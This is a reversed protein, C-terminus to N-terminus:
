ARRPHCAAVGGHDPRVGKVTQQEWSWLMRDRRLFCTRLSSSTRTPASRYGENGSVVAYTTRHPGRRSRRHDRAVFTLATASNGGVSDVALARRLGHSREDGLRLAARNDERPMHAAAKSLRQHFAMVSVDPGARRATPGVIAHHDNGTPIRRTAHLGHRM